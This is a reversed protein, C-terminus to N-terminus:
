RDILTSQSRIRGEKLLPIIEAKKWHGPCVGRRWCQNFVELWAEKMEESLQKMMRPEIGDPGGKKSGDLQDLAAQLEMGTFPM